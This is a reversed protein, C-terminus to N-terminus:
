VLSDAAYAVGCIQPPKERAGESPSLPQEPDGIGRDQCYTPATLCGNPTTFMQLTASALCYAQFTVEWPTALPGRRSQIEMADLPAQEAVMM